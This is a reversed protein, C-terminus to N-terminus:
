SYGHKKIFGQPTRHRVDLREDSALRPQPEDMVQTHIAVCRVGGLRGDEFNLAFYGVYPFFYPQM